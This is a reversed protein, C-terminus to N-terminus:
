IFYVMYFGDFHKEAKRIQKDQKSDQNSLTKITNKRQYIM